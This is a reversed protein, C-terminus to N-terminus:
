QCSSLTQMKLMKWFSIVPVDGIGLLELSTKGVNFRDFLAVVEGPCYYILNRATKASQPNSHGETLAVIKRTM